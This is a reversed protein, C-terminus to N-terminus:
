ELTSILQEIEESTLSDVESKEVGSEILFNRVEAETITDEDPSTETESTIIAEIVTLIFDDDFGNVTEAEMGSEILVQRFQSLSKEKITLDTPSFQPFLDSIKTDPGVLRISKCNEDPRCNPDTGASVEQQDNIGDSDTDALYISSSYLYTEDYDNLKDGDTDKQKLEDALQTSISAALQRDEESIKVRFPTLISNKILWAGLILVALGFIGVGILLVKTLHDLPARSVVFHTEQPPTVAEQFTSDSMSSQNPQYQAM